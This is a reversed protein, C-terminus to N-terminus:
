RIEEGEKIFKYKGGMEAAFLQSSQRDIEEALVKLCRRCYGETDTDDEEWVPVDPKECKVCTDLRYTKGAFTLVKVGQPVASQAAPPASTSPTPITGPMAYAPHQPPIILQLRPTVAQSDIQWVAGAQSGSRARVQLVRIPAQPDMRAEYLSGCASCSFAHAPCPLSTVFPNACQPCQWNM